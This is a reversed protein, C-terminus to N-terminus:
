NVRFLATSAPSANATNTMDAREAGNVRRDVENPTTWKRASNVRGHAILDDVGSTSALRSLTAAPDTVREM